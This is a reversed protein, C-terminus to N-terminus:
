VGMELKKLKRRYAGYRDQPSFRPPNRSVTKNKCKKCTNELTYKKCKKCYLLNSM